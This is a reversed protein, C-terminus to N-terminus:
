PRLAALVFDIVHAKRVATMARTRLNEKLIHSITYANSFYFQSISVITIWLQNPDVGARFDGAAVGDAYISRVREVFPANVDVVVSSNKIHRGRLRNEEAVLEVVSQHANINEFYTSIFERLRVPPPLSDDVAKSDLARMMQYSYEITAKYLGDKNEFHYYLAQKNVNANKAIVEIRAGGFGNEAFEALASGLILDKTRAPNGRIVGKKASQTPM